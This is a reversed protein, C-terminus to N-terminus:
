NKKNDESKEAERKKNTTFTKGLADNYLESLQEYNQSDTFKTSALFIYRVGAYLDVRLFNRVASHGFFHSVM